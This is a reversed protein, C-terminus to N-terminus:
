SAKTLALLLGIPQGLTPGGAGILTTSSFDDSYTGVTLTTSVTVSGTSASIHQVQLTDGNQVLVGSTQWPGGNKRFVSSPDGTISAGTFVGSGLGDITIINSTEITSVPVGTVDTFKFATPTEDPTTTTPTTPKTKLRQFGIKRFAGILSM